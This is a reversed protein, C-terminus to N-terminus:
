LENKREEFSFEVKPLDAPHAFISSLDGFSNDVKELTKQVEVKSKRSLGEYLESVESISGTGAGSGRCKDLAKAKKSLQSQLSLNSKKLTSIEEKLLFEADKLKSIQKHALHLENQIQSVHSEIKEQYEEPYASKIM